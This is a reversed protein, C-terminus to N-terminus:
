SLVTLRRRRSILRRVCKNSYNISTVRMRISASDASFMTEARCIAGSVQSLHAIGGQKSAQQGIVIPVRAIALTALFQQHFIREVPDPTNPAGCAAAEPPLADNRLPLRAFPTSRCVTSCGTPDKARALPISLPARLVMWWRLAGAPRLPPM